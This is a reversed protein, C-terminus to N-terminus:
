EEEIKIMSNKIIPGYKKKSEKDAEELNFSKFMEDVLQDFKEDFEDFVDFWRRKKNKDWAM